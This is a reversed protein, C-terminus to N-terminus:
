GYTRIRLGEEPNFSVFTSHEIWDGCNIYDISGITSRSPTHIHGCIVGDVEHKDAYKECLKEFNSLYMVTKKSNEKLYGSLSWPKYGFWNRIRSIANSIIISKEYFISGINYLFTKNKLWTDFQHGHMLLYKTSNLTVIMTDVIELNKFDGLLSDPIFDHNGRIWYVRMGLNIKNLITRIVENHSKGWHTLNHRKLAWFDVFDGVIYLNEIETSNLFQNLLKAKAFKSGLHTDSIFVSHYKIM